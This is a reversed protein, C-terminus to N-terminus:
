AGVYAEGDAYDISETTGIPDMCSFVSGLNVGFADTGGDELGEVAGLTMGDSLGDLKGLIVGDIAGDELGDVDGLAM